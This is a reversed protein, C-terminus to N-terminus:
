HKKIYGEIRLTSYGERGEIANITAVPLDGETLDEVADVFDEDDDNQIVLMMVQSEKCKHSSLYKENCWYCLGKCRREEMEKKSLAVAPKKSSNSLSSTESSHFSASSSTSSKSPQASGIQASLSSANAATITTSSFSSERSNTSPVGDFLARISCEQIRAMQMLSALSMSKFADVASQIDERLGRLFCNMAVDELIDLKTLLDDFSKTYEDVSSSLQQVQKIQAMPNLHKIEIFRAEMHAFYEEDSRNKM